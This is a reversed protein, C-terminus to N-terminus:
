AKTGASQLTQDPAPSFTISIAGTGIDKIIVKGKGSQFNVSFAVLNQSPSIKLQLVVHVESLHVESDHYFLWIENFYMQMQGGAAKGSSLFLFVSVCKGFLLRKFSSQLM